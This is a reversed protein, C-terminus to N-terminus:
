RALTKLYDLISAVDADSATSTSIPPMQGQGERVVALLEDLSRSM